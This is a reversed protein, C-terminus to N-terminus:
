KMGHPRGGLVTSSGRAAPSQSTARSISLSFGTAFCSDGLDAYISWVLMLTLLVVFGYDVATLNSM